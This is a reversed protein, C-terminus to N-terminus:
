SVPGRYLIRSEPAATSPGSPPTRRVGGLSTPADFRRTLMAVERSTMADPSLTAFLRCGGLSVLDLADKVFGLIARFDNYLALQELGVLVVDSGRHANLFQALSRKGELDLTGAPIRLGESESAETIWRIDYTPGFRRTAKSPHETTLLLGGRAGAAALASPADQAPVLLLVDDGDPVSVDGSGHLVELVHDVSGRLVALRDAGFTGSGAALIVTGGSASAQNTVRRVARAVADFGNLEALYDLDDLLVATGPNERLFKTITHLLEFELGAPRVPREGGSSTTLWVIPTRELGFRKVIREPALASVCLGPTSSVIERFAGMATSRGPEVVLYNLGRELGHRVPRPPRAEMVPEIALYQYRAVAYGIVASWFLTYVSGLGLPVAPDAIAPWFVETIGAPAAGFVLGAAVLGQVPGARGRRARLWARVFLAVGVYLWLAFLPFTYMGTTVSVPAPGFANYAVGDLIWRTQTIFYVWVPVPAYIAPLAWWRRLRPSPEPYTLALHVLAAPVIVIGTWTGYLLTMLVGEGTGPPMARATAETIDWFAFAFMLVLFARRAPGRLGVGLVYIALFLSVGFAVLSLLTGVFTM